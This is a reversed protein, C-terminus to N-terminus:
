GCENDRFYPSQELTKLLLKQRQIVGIKPINKGHWNILVMFFPITLIGLLNRKKM